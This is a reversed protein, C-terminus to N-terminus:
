RPGYHERGRKLVLRLTPAQHGLQLSLCVVAKRRHQKVDLARGLESREVRDVSGGGLAARKDNIWHNLVM